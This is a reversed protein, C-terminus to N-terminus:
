SSYGLLIGEYVGPDFKGHKEDIRKIYCKRGFFKFYKITSTKGYWIEHPTQTSNVRVNTQNLVTITAFVAEVWFTTPTRSEYLM